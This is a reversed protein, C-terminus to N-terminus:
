EVPTVRAETRMRWDPPLERPSGIVDITERFLVDASSRGIMLEIEGPEVVRTTGSITFGLMDVPLIFSVRKKEGPELPLRKFGKLEKVPRVLSAIIDRVYLQVVEAGQRRGTNQVTCSLEIEGDIRVKRDKVRFDSYAFSTYSLGFGFPYVAGFDPHVPAGASKMKHNYFYPMAGASKPFSVTLRGGPNIDGYLIGAVAAAGEQGPLWAEVVANARSFAEGLNYPRGNLLVIVTPKGLSLLADVLEQQVGPLTLSSADSGEGVTGTLFLGSLDGVAIVIRDARAAVALAEPFGSRDFSITSKKQGKEADVDGPFVPAELMRETFIDCGKSFLIEGASARKELAHRLTLASPAHADMLHQARIMHVPFSYGGYLALRDDALPGILATTGEDRLPLMGDNKLLVISSEAAEAAVRRHEATNLAIAGEDAYSNEFLGLRSKEVLVRTVAADVAGIELIGRALAEEVGTRFCTFGPLEMDMGANLALASAEAEDRAVGHHAFLLRIAEYDSVVLGDFGWRDRLLETLLRRSSSSPEGDIDHYAPMVSGARALKVAMEFPLLFTDNLEREGVRVPAHNRGGESFAHGAFHKLTALVRRGEGQLGRVYAVGMCGVLYPDEGFTEETRGWRVDRSVDLVPALGQRSGVSHLEKGIVGAVRTLLEEDWTSGYNIAAPFLTAGQAMLGPLCEEHALAPIKLRTREVLYKQIRNLGRVCKTADIPRAGLPRTIQGIGNQLVKSPDARNQEIFGEKADRLVFTGDEEIKLWVSYLQAAKETISMESLLRRAREHHDIM